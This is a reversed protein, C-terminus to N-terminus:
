PLFACYSLSYANIPLPVVRAAALLATGVCASLIGIAILTISHTRSSVNRSLWLPFFAASILAVGFAIKNMVLQPILALQPLVVFFLDQLRSATAIVAPGAQERVVRVATQLHPVTSSAVGSLSGLPGPTGVNM